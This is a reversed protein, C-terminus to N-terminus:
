RGGRGLLRRNSALLALAVGLILGSVLGILGLRELTSVRNSKATDAPVVLQLDNQSASAGASNAYQTSLTQSKLQATALTLRTEAIAGADPKKARSLAALNARAADTRAQAARYEALLGTSQQRKNLSAVYDVLSAAGGNALRVATDQSHEKGEIRILTSEPIPSASLGSAAEAPPIGARRAAASTVRDATVARAYGVALTQNGIIVGQLTYAPVDVRGVNVRAEATYTPARSFGLALALGVLLLIPLITLLPHRLASEIPGRFESAADEGSGFSPLYIGAPTPVLESSTTAYAPAERPITTHDVAPEAPIPEAAPIATHDDPVEGMSTSDPATDAEASPDSPQDLPLEPPKGEVLEEAHDAPGTTQTETSVVAGSESRRGNVYHPASRRSM